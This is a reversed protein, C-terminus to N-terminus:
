TMSLTSVDLTHFITFSYSLVCQYKKKKLYFHKVVFSNTLTKFHDDVKNASQSFMSLFEAFHSVM